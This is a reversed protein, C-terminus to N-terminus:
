VWDLGFCGVCGLGVMGLMVSATEMRKERSIFGITKAQINHFFLYELSVYAWGISTTGTVALGLWIWGLRTREM